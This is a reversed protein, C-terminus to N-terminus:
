MALMFIIWENMWKHINSTQLRYPWGSGPSIGSRSSVCEWKVGDSRIFGKSNRSSSKIALVLTRPSDTPSSKTVRAQTTKVWHWNKGAHSRRVSPCGSRLYYLARCLLSHQRGTFITCFCSCIYSLKLPLCQLTPVRAEPLIRNTRINAPKEPFSSNSHSWANVCHQQEACM